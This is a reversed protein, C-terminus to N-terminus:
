FLRTFPHDVQSSSALRFRAGIIFGDFFPQREIKPINVADIAFVAHIKAGAVAPHICGTTNARFQFHNTSFRELSHHNV